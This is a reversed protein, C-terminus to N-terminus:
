TRGMRVKWRDGEEEDQLMAIARELLDASVRPQEDSLQWISNILGDVLVDLMAHLGGPPEPSPLHSMPRLGATQAERPGSAPQLVPGGCAECYDGDLFVPNNCHHIGDEDANFGICRNRDAM